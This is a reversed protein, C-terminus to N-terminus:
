IFSIDLGFRTICGLRVMNEWSVSGLVLLLLLLLAACLGGTEKLTRLAATAPWM